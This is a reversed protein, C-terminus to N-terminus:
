LGRVWRGMFCGRRAMGMEADWADALVRDLSKLGFALAEPMGLM